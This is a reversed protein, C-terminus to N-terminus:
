VPQAIGHGVLWRDNPYSDKLRKVEYGHERLYGECAHYKRNFAAVDGDDIEFIIVPRVDTLVKRMGHIVELEAGEVDIKIVTARPWGHLFILDDISVTEVSIRRRADPPRQASTLASGGSYEALWLERTGSSSCVAKEVITVNSFGNLGANLSVYAANEPVPEFAYVSGCASVLRAGIVTFFGVNAGVDYFVDGSRLYDALAQQIPLENDGIAYTRNSPGADFRLGAGVGTLMERARGNRLRHLIPSSKLKNILKDPLVPRILQEFYM